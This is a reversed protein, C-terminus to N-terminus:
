DDDGQSDGVKRRIYSQVQLFGNPPDTPGASADAAGPVATDGLLKASHGTTVMWAVVADGLLSVNFACGRSSTVIGLDEARVLTVVVLPTVYQRPAYKAIPYSAM